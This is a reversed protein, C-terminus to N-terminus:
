PRIEKVSTPLEANKDGHVQQHCLVHILRRNKILNRETNERNSILHHDELPEGNFIPEKCVVCRFNQQRAMFWRDSKQYPAKQARNEWYRSLKPDDKSYRGIVKVHRTSTSVWSFKTMYKGSEKDGFVRNDQRDKNWPGLYKSRIWGWSKKPHQRRMWRYIRESLWWQIKNFTVSAACFRFYGSWGFIVPNLRKILTEANAGSLKLMMEKLKAKIKRLSNDSPKILLKYGRKTNRAEYQRINFGLFDFGETIHVIRTKEESLQLGRLALWMKLEEIVQEADERSQCFVVFDDAYRVVGRKGINAGNINRRVGIAEEMGHLAINALLPSIIGGQPTGSSTDHKIGREMYEAKLWQRILEKGPVNGITSLLYDHDINDFAGQIDADVVWKKNGKTNAFNAIDEIADHASRGPRFGYSTGEFQAEWQPELGNKVMGQFVRDKLVPIGLPRLKGNSKPIYIRRVPKAKWPQYRTLDDVLVGRAEPTLAVVGDIGATKKGVNDQTARRVSVLLNSKSRLLLKQLNKVRSLDGAESAKFIRQRLNRVIQFHRKWEISRWETLETTGNASNRVRM